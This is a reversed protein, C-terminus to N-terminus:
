IETPGPLTGTDLRDQRANAPPDGELHIGDDEPTYDGATALMTRVAASDSPDFDTYRPDDPALWCVRALLHAPLHRACFEILERRRGYDDWRTTLPVYLTVTWAGTTNDDPARYKFHEIMLPREDRDDPRDIRFWFCLWAYFGRPTGRRRWIRAARLLFERKRDLEADRDAPVRWTEPFQFAFWDALEDFLALLRDYAAQAPAPAALGPVAVTRAEPSLWTTLEDLEVVLARILDDVLDLYGSVEDWSREDEQYVAPLHERTPSYLPAPEPM